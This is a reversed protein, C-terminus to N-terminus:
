RRRRRRIVAFALGTATLALTAPEPVASTAGSALVDVVNLDGDLQYVTFPQSGPTGSGLWTFTMTFPTALSAGDVLSVAVFSGPPLDGVNGPTAVSTPFTTTFWVPQPTPSTDQILPTTDQLDSYLNSDFDIFLAQNAGFAFDSVSYSYQWVDGGKNTTDFQIAIAQADAANFAMTGVVVCAAILIRKM